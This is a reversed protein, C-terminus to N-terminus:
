WDPGDQDLGNKIQWFYTPRLQGMMLFSGFVEVWGIVPFTAGTV